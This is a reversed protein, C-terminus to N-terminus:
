LAGPSRTGKKTGFSFEPWQRFSHLTEMERFFAIREKESRGM